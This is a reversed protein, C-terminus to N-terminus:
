FRFKRFYVNFYNIYIIIKVDADRSNNKEVSFRKSGRINKELGAKPKSMEEILKSVESTMKNTTLLDEKGLEENIGLFKM